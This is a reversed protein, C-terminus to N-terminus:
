ETCCLLGFKSEIMRLWHDAELHEGTETFISLHTAVFDEYTTPALTPANRSGNRGRTSNAM